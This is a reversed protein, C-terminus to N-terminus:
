RKEKPVLSWIKPGLHSLTETGNYVLYVKRMKFSVPNRLNYTTATSAFTDNLITPSM